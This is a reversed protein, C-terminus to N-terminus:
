IYYLDNTQIDLVMMDVNTHGFGYGCKNERGYKDFFIMDVNTHGFGDTIVRHQSSEIGSSSSWLSDLSTHTDPRAVMALSKDLRRCCPQSLGACCITLGYIYNIITKTFM